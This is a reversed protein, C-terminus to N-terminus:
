VVCEIQVFENAYACWLLAYQQGLHLLTPIGYLYVKGVWSERDRSNCYLWCRKVSTPKRLRM